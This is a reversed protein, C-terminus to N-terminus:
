PHISFIFGDVNLELPASDASNVTGSGNIDSRQYGTLGNENGLINMDVVDINGDANLDGSYLAWRGTDILKMNNGYAKNANTTFDYSGISASIPLASWTELANRHKLVIYYSGTLIPLIAVATGNTNLAVRKTAAIAYPSTPQRLIVDISDTLSPNSGIGQNSLVPLM